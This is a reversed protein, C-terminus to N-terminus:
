CVLDSIISLIKDKAEAVCEKPGSIRVTNGTDVKPFSISVGGFEESIKQIQEGRKLLFYRHHKQEIEVQDDAHNELRKISEELSKM